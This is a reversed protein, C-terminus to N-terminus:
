IARMLLQVGLDSVSAAVLSTVLFWVASVGFNAQLLHEHALKRDLHVLAATLSILLLRSSWAPHLASQIGEEQSMLGFEEAGFIIVVAYIVRSLLWVLM